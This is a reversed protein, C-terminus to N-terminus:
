WGCCLGMCSPWQPSLALAWGTAAPPAAERRVTLRRVEEVSPIASGTWDLLECVPSRGGKDEHHGIVRLLTWLGSALRFGVIEGTAWDTASRVVKAIRKAAPPSAVLQSRLKALVAERKRRDAEDPWRALDRGEDIIELSSSTRPRRPPRIEVPTPLPLGSHPGKTPITSPRPM